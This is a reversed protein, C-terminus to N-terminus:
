TESRTTLSVCHTHTCTHEFDESFPSMPFADGHEVARTEEGEEEGKRDRKQM